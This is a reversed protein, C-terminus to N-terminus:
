DTEAQEHTDLSDLTNDRLKAEGPDSDDPDSLYVCLDQGARIREDALMLGYKFRNEAKRSGRTWQQKFQSATWHSPDSPSPLPPPGTESEGPHRQRFFPGIVVWLIWYPALSKTRKDAARENIEHLRKIPNRSRGIIPTFKDVGLKKLNAPSVRLLYVFLPHATNSQCYPCQSGDQSGLFSSHEQRSQVRQRKTSVSASSSLSWSSSSSSSSM